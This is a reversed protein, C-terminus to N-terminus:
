RVGARTSPRDPWGHRLGADRGRGSFPGDIVEVDLQARGFADLYDEEAFLTLEHGEVLHDVDDSSAVLHYIEVDPFGEGSARQGM